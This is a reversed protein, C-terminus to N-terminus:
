SASGRRRLRGDCAFAQVALGFLSLRPSRSCASQCCRCIIARGSPAGVAFLISDGPLFPLLVLGTECFIVAAVLLLAQLENVQLMAM